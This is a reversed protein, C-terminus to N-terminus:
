SCGTFYEIMISVAGFYLQTEPDYEVRSTSLHKYGQIGVDQFSNDAFKAKLTTKITGMYKEIFQANIYETSSITVSFGNKCYLWVTLYAQEKEAYNKGISIVQTPNDIKKIEVQPYKPSSHPENGFIWYEGGRDSCGSIYTYPDILNDRLFDRVTNIGTVCDL